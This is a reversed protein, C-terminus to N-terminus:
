GQRPATWIEVEVVLSIQFLRALESIPSLFVERRWTKVSFFNWFYGNGFFFETITTFLREYHTEPEHILLVNEPIWELTQKLFKCHEKVGTAALHINEEYVRKWSESDNGKRNMKWCNGIWFVHQFDRRLVWFKSIYQKRKM